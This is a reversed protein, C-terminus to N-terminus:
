AVIMKIKGCRWVTLTYMQKYDTNVCMGLLWVDDQISVNNLTYMKAQNLLFQTSWFLMNADQFLSVQNNRSIVM